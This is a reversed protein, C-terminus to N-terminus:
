IGLAESWVRRKESYGMAARATSTSPLRQYEVQAHELSLDPLVYKTFIAEAKAGNFFLHSIRRHASLFTNFDNPVISDEVIDADLSSSRTCSQMVDWLAIHHDLLAQCRESYPANLETGMLTTLIEWFANRPHAYYQQTDLSVKGPMSGLILVRADPSVIPPFSHIRTFDEAKSMCHIGIASQRSDRKLLFLQYLEAFKIISSVYQSTMLINKPVSNVKRYHTIYLETGRHPSMALNTLCLNAFGQIGPELGPTAEM